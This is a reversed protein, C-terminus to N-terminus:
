FFVSKDPPNAFQLWDLVDSTDEEVACKFSCTYMFTIFNLMIQDIIEFWQQM